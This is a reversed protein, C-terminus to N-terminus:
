QDCAIGDGDRDLHKAYGPEGVHIPAAGAERVATCNKYHVSAGAAGQESQSGAAQDDAEKQKRQAEALRAAEKEKAEEQEAEANTVAVEAQEADPVEAEGSDEGSVMGIATLLIFLYALSAISSKWWKGSRFGLIKQYWKRGKNKFSVGAKSLIAVFEKGSDNLVLKGKEGVIESKIAFHDVTMGNFHSFPWAFLQNARRQENDYEYLYVLKDVVIFQGKKDKEERYHGEVVLLANPHKEKLLRNGNKSFGMDDQKMLFPTIKVDNERLENLCDAHLFYDFDHTVTTLIEKDSNLIKHELIDFFEQADENKKIDDFAQRYSGLYLTLTWEDKDKGDTAIDINSIENYHFAQHEHEGIFLFRDNTLVLVGDVEKGSKKDFEAEIVKLVIEDANLVNHEALLLAKEYKSKTAKQTTTPKNGFWQQM